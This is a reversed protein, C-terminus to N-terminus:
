THTEKHTETHRHYTFSNILDCLYLIISDSMQSKMLIFDYKVAIVKLLPQAHLSQNLFFLKDM